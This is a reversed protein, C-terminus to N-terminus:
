NIILNGDTNLWYIHGNYEVSTFTKWKSVGNVTVGQPLTISESSTDPITYGVKPTALYYSNTDSDPAFEIVVSHNSIWKEGYETQILYWNNYRKMPSVIQPRTSFGSNTGYIPYDFLAKPTLLLLKQETNSSNNEIENLSEIVSDTQLWYKNDNFVIETWRDWIRTGKVITGKPISISGTGSLPDRFGVKPKSLYYSDEINIPNFDKQVSASSIWYEKGDYEYSYWNNFQKTSKIIQKDIITNTASGYSPLEFLTKPTRLLLEQNVNEIENNLMIESISDTTKIWYNNSDYFVELWDQWERLVPVIIKSPLTIYPEGDVPVSYAPQNASLFVNKDSSEPIFNSEVSSDSIWIIGDTSKIGFWNNYKYDVQIISPPLQENTVNGFSPLRFLAKPTKLLLLKNSSQISDILTFKVVGSDRQIWFTKGDYKIRLKDDWILDANVINDKPIIISHSSMSLDAYANTANDLRYTENIMKPSIEEVTADTIWYTKNKYKIEYWNKYESIVSVSQKPIIIGTNKNSLPMTFLTKPTLLVLKKDVKKVEGDVLSSNYIWKQGEETLVRLKNSYKADVQYEGVPLVYNSTHGSTPRNLTSKNDFTTIKYNVSSLKNEWLKNSEQAIYLGVGLNRNIEEQIVSIPPNTEYVAYSIEPTLGPRHFKKIFWDTFGMGQASPNPKVMKYGTMNSVTSAIKYDRLYDQERTQYHWFLIRGSSHYSVAIEPDVWYTFNTIAKTEPTGIPAIGPYNKYYPYSVERNTWGAPYQRNLDIGQANAKWRSFNTSGANMKILKQHDSSPFSKLGTQQLTVGDPNVMPVFWISTEDLINKVNYGKISANQYYAESYRDVLEMAVNTTPWERAHHSANIFSTADGKGLKLAWIKRGYPTTGISKYSILDPYERSLEKIDETMEEYSYVQIPNVFDSAELTIPFITCMIIFFGMLFFNKM